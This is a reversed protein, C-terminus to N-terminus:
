KVRWIRFGDAGDKTARRTVASGLGFHRTMIQFESNRVSTPTKDGIPVFYSDGVEMETLFPRSSGRGPLPVGKEIETM